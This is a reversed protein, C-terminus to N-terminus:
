TRISKLFEGVQARLKNGAQVLEGTENQVNAAVSGTEGVAESVAIM